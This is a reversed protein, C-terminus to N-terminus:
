KALELFATLNEDLIEDAATNIISERMQAAATLISYEEFDVVAYKPRNNKMIIVAGQEDVQRVVKSFNQNADTISVLNDANILL